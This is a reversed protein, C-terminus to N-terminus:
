ATDKTKRFSTSFLMFYQLGARKAAATKNREPCMSLAM